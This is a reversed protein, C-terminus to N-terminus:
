TNFLRTTESVIFADDQETMCKFHKKPCKSFGIKSCPRCSLGSVESVVIRKPTQPEYPYMGLEPITNGWISVIPQEFAAAIHMLGTDNTIVVGAQKVLSASQHLSFDGCANFVNKRSTLSCIQVGKEKDELGGLLIVPCPLRNIITVIKDVPLMKTAHQGGIVFAVYEKNKLSFYKELDVHESEPMFYDLGKGDNYVGLKKVAMFYRDVIHIKPLTNIHFRVLLWKKFNLKPFSANAVHLARKVHLSRLNKQLDVVFDFHESKLQPLAEKVRKKISHVCDIYPNNEYLSTYKKKPSFMYNM